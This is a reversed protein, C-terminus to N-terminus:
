MSRPSREEAEVGRGRVDPEPAVVVADPLDPIPMPFEPRERIRGLAWRYVDLIRRAKAEWTFNVFCRRVSEHSKSVIESPNEVLKELLNTLSAVIASRSGMPLVWGTAPTVIEAPGGYNVVIPPVGAAMAELVAGGGFERVSPFVFIDAQELQARIRSHDLWGTWTVGSVIGLREAEKTLAARQPGDGVVTLNIRGARVAAAAAALVMDAGKYPVLRGVFLARLPSQPMRDAGPPFRTPDIANEPLYFARSRYRPPLQEWTAESGILLASAHQRTSHYYPLLKYFGRLYSLWEGEQWRTREFGKPWAIGGNLPGVVFPVGALKCWKAIPSAVTPSLPTIRHVVDFRRERIAAGFTKWVRHEFHYNTLASLATLTTWGKGAGGRLRAGLRWALGAVSETDLATFERGEKWGARVLAERNRIQTVVHVECVDALARVLSWGVLPVSVWEPNCAEALLLARFSGVM